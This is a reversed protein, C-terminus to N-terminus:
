SGYQSTWSGSADGHVPGTPQVPPRPTREIEEVRSTAVEKCREKTHGYRGCEFCILPLCEYEVGYTRGDVKIWPNTPEYILLSAIRAYRGTREDGDLLRAECGGWYSALQVYPVRITTKSLFDRIRCTAKRVLWIIEKRLWWKTRPERAQGSSGHRSTEFSIFGGRLGVDGMVVEKGALEGNGGGDDGEGRIRVKKTSRLSEEPLLPAVGKEEM